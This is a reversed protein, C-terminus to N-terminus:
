IMQQSNLPVMVDDRDLLAIARQRAILVDADTAGVPISASIEFIIPALISAVGDVGTVSVDKSFKMATKAVGRFNGNQKPLTRYLGLTDKADLSHDASIYVSRNQYEDFRTYVHNVLGVGDNEEDVALTITNPQM